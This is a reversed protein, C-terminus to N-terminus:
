VSARQVALMTVDDSRPAIDIFAFLNTKIRELTESASKLPQTLLSQLRDRTYFEDEPSRAETVGDTYGVLLDGPELQIEQSLFTIDPMLGVAPGTPKLRDKIRGANIVYLPEHGGNVYSLIGTSPNLVGFFLTAYMCERGHIHAIYNNTSSVAGLRAMQDNASSSITEINGPTSSIQTPGPATYYIAQEAFVRILSRFLAMYLASGVGKDCVDAIVLGVNGDPLMFVDYFDGSVQGAPFFCTAIEWNPLDPIHSPLFERQIERGKELEFEIKKVSEWERLGEVMKNFNTSLEGIEDGSTVPALQNLDGKAVEASIQSLNEIPRSIRRAFYYGLFRSLVLAIIFILIIWKAERKMIGAFSESDIGIKLFYTNLDNEGTVNVFLAHEDDSRALLGPKVFHRKLNRDLKESFSSQAPNLHLVKNDDFFMRYWLTDDAAKAYIAIDSVAYFSSSLDALIQFLQGLEPSPKGIGKWLFDPM